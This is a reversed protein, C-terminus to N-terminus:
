QSLECVFKLNSYSVGFVMCILCENERFPPRDSVFCQGFDQMKTQKHGSKSTKRSLIFNDFRDLPEKKAFFTCRFKKANTREKEAFFACRYKQIRTEEIGIAVDFFIGFRFNAQFIHWDGFVGFLGLKLVSVKCLWLM